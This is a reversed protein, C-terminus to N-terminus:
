MKVKKKEEASNLFTNLNETAKMEHVFALM